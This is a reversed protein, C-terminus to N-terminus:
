PQLISRSALNIHYIAVYFFYDKDKREQRIGRASRPDRRNGRSIRPDVRSAIDKLLALEKQEMSSHGMIFTMSVPSGNTINWVDHNPSAM